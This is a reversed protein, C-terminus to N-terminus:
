EGELPSGPLTDSQPPVGKGFFARIAQELKTDVTASQERFEDVADGSITVGEELILQKVETKLVVYELFENVLDDIAKQQIILRSNQEEIRGKMILRDIVDEGRAAAMDYQNKVPSFVWFNTIPSLIKSFARFVKSSVQEVTILGKQLLDPTEFLVGLILYRIQDRFTENEEVIIAEPRVLEQAAQVQRLRGIYADKGNLAAGIALRLTAKLDAMQQSTLRLMSDDGEIPALSPDDSTYPFDDEQTQM